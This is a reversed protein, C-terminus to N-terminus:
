PMSYDNLELADLFFHVLKIKAIFLFTILYGNFQQIAAVCEDISSMTVFVFRRVKGTAKDLIM